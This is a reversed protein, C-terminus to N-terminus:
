ESRNRVRLKIATSGLGFRERLKREVYRLYGSPLERNVFFTFTPPDTDGQTAYLIRAGKPAPQQAQFERVAKILEGTAIRRRYQSFGTQIAPWIRTTGLGTLASIRLVPPDGLFALKREVEASVGAKEQTSLADWKNLLVIVPCGSGNAREALRQDQHTVGITSDVLLLAIDAADLAQLARLTSYYESDSSVKAKRRMGATDVLRVSGVSTHIVTDIPDRTTGALDHTISRESGVLRNFLTSKGANPRGLLAVAFDTAGSGDQKEEPPSTAESSGEAPNPEDHNTEAHNIEAHNAQNAEDHNAENAKAHNGEADEAVDANNPPPTLKNVVEDLLDGCGLGHIASVPLADGLGLGLFEYIARTQAADDVKNVVLLVQHGSRQLTKAIRHDDATAGVTADVVLLVLDSRAIAVEAQKTVKADLDDGKQTLGGTDFLMFNHGQWQAEVSKADRTVGPRAEM